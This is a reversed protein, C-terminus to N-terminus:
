QWLLVMQLPQNKHNLPAFHQFAMKQTLPNADTAARLRRGAVPALGGSTNKACGAASLRIV